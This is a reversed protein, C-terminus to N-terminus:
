TRLTLKVRGGSPEGFVVTVPGLAHTLLCLPRGPVVRRDLKGPARPAALPGPPCGGARARTGDVLVRSGSVAFDARAAAAPSAGDPVVRWLSRGRRPVRLVRTLAVHREGPRATEVAPSPPRAAVGGGPERRPAFVTVGLALALGAVAVPVLGLRLFPLLGRRPPSPAPPGPPLGLLSAWYRRWLSGRRDLPPVPVVPRTDILAHWYREGLSRM